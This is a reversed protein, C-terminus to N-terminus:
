LKMIGAKRLVKTFRCAVFFCLRKLFVRAAIARKPIFAGWLPPVTCVSASRITMRIQKSQHVFGQLVSDVRHASM